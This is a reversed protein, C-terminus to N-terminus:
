KEILIIKVREMEKVISIRTGKIVFIIEKDIGNLTRKRGEEGENAWTTLTQEAEELSDYERAQDHNLNILYYSEESKSM